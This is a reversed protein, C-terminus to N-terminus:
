RGTELSRIQFGEDVAVFDGRVRLTLKIIVNFAAVARAAMFSSVNAFVAFIWFSFPLFLKIFLFKLVPVGDDFPLGTGGSARLGRGRKMLFRQVPAILMGFSNKPKHTLEEQNRERANMGCRWKPKWNCKAHRTSQDQLDKTKWRKFTAYSVAYGWILYQYQIPTVNKPVTVKTKSLKSFKGDKGQKDVFRPNFDADDGIVARM